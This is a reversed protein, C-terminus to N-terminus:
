ADPMLYRNLAAEAEAPEALHPNAREPGLATTEPYGWQLVHERTASYFPGLLLVSPKRFAGAVHLLM